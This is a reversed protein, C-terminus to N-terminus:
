SVQIITVDQSVLWLYMSSETSGSYMCFPKMRAAIIASTVAAKVMYDYETGASWDNYTFVWPM